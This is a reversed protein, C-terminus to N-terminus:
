QAERKYVEDHFPLGEVLSPGSPNTSGLMEGSMNIVCSQDKLWKIAAAFEGSTAEGSNIRELLQEGLSRHLEVTIDEVSM